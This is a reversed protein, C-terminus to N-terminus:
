SVDYKKGGVKSTLVSVVTEAFTMENAEMM